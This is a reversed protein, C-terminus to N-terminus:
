KKVVPNAAYDQYLLYTYFIFILSCIFRVMQLLSDILEKPLHLIAALVSVLISIGVVILMPFVGYGVTQWFRGKVLEMSRGLAESGAKGEFALIVLSFVLYNAVILGPIVLLLTGGLIALSTLLSTVFYKGKNKWGISLASRVTVPSKVLISKFIELGVAGLWAGTIILALILVVVLIVVLAWLKIVSVIGLIIIVPLVVALSIGTSALSYKALLLFNGRFLNWSDKTIQIPSRM